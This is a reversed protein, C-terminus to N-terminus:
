LEMYHDRVELFDLWCRSCSTVDYGCEPLVFLAQKSIDQIDRFNCLCWAWRRADTLTILVTEWLCVWLILKDLYGWM